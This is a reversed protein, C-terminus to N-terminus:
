RRPDRQDRRPDLWALQASPLRQRLGQRLLAPLPQERWALGTTLAAVVLAPPTDVAYHYQGYVTAFAVGAVWALWARPAGSRVLALAAVASLAVHSSPFAAAYHPNREYLTHAILTFPGFPDSAPNGHPHYGGAPVLLWALACATFAGLFATTYRAAAEAGRRWWLWLMTLPVVLYFSVYFANALEEVPGGLPWSPPGVTRSLLLADARALWPDVYRHPELMVTGIAGQYLLPWLIFVAVLESLRLSQERRLATAASLALLALFPAGDAAVERAVAAGNAVLHGALAALHVLALVTGIVALDIRVDKLDLARSTSSM